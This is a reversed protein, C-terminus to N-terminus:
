RSNIKCYKNILEHVTFQIASHKALLLPSLKEVTLQIHKASVNCVSLALAEMLYFSSIHSLTNSRSLQFFLPLIANYAADSFVDNWESVLNPPLSTYLKEKNREVDVVLAGCNQVLRFLAVTFSLLMPNTNQNPSVDTWSEELTACWSTMSCLTFDWLSHSLNQPYLEVITSLLRIIEIVAWVAEPSTGTQSESKLDYGFLFSDAHKLQWSQLIKVSENMETITDENATAKLRKLLYRISALLQVNSFWSDTTVSSLKTMQMRAIRNLKEESINSSILLGDETMEQDELVQECSQQFKRAAFCWVWRRNRSNLTLKKFLETQESPSCSSLLVSANSELMEGIKEVDKM